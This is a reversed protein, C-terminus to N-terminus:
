KPGNKPGLIIGTSSRTVRGVSNHNYSSFMRCNYLLFSGFLIFINFILLGIFILLISFFFLIKIFINFLNLLIKIFIRWFISKKRGIKHEWFRGLDRGKHAPNSEFDGFQITKKLKKGYTAVNKLRMRRDWFTVISPPFGGRLSGGVVQVFLEM